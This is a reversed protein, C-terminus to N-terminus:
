VFCLFFYGRLRLGLRMQKLYNKNGLDAIIVDQWLGCHIDTLFIRYIEVKMFLEGWFLKGSEINYMKNLDTYLSGLWGAAGLERIAALKWM